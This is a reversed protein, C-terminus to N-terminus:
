RLAVLEARAGRRVFVVANQRLRRGLAAAVARCPGFALLSAEPAWTGDHGSGCGDIFALAEARMANQLRALARANWHRPASRGHPNWATVYVARSAGGRSLARDVEASWEGVRIVVRPGASQAVYDTARYAQGARRCVSFM